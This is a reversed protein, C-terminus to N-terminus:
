NLTWRVPSVNMEIAPIVLPVNLLTGSTGILLKSAQQRLITAPREEVAEVREHRLIQVTSLIHILTFTFTETISALSDPSPTNKMVASCACFFETDVFCVLVALLCHRSLRLSLGFRLNVVMGEFAPSAKPSFWVFVALHHRDGPLDSRKRPVSRGRVYVM